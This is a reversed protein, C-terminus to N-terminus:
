LGLIDLIQQFFSIIAALLWTRLCPAVAGVFVPGRHWCVRPCSVAGQFAFLGLAAVVKPSKVRDTQTVRPIALPM